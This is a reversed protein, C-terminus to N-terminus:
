IDSRTWFRSDNKTGYEKKPMSDYLLRWYVSPSLFLYIFGFKTQRKNNTLRQTFSPFIYFIIKWKKKIIRKLIHASSWISLAWRAWAIFFLIYYPFRLFGCLWLHHWWLWATNTPVFSAFISCFVRMKAYLKHYSSCRISHRYLRCEFSSEPSLFFAFMIITNNM